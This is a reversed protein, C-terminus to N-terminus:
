RAGPARLELPACQVAAQIKGGIVEHRAWGYLREAETNWALVQMSLDFVIVSEDVLDAVDVDPLATSAPSNEPLLESFRSSM